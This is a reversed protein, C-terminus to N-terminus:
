TPAHPQAVADTNTHNISITNLHMTTIIHTGTINTIAHTPNAGVSKGNNNNNTISTNANASFAVVRSIM